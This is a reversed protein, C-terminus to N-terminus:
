EEKKKIILRNGRSAVITVYSGSAINQDDTIAEWIVGNLTITGSQAPSVDGQLTVTKGIFDYQDNTPSESKSKLNFRKSILKFSLLTLLSVTAFAVLQINIDAGCIALIGSVLGGVSFWVSVLDATELELYVTGAIVLLWATLEHWIEM